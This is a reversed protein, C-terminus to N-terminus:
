SWIVPVLVLLILVSILTLPMGARVYDFFRYRGSDYVLLCAPELPSIFSLSASLTVLIALMRPDLGLGPAASVAVPILTLAAAANSMPQTLLVTLLSFCAMAFVPGFPASFAVIQAALYSAAGSQQMALGFSSMAAILVLLRWEIFSYAESM